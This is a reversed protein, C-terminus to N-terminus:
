RRVRERTREKHHTVHGRRREAAVFEKCSAVRGAPTEPKRAAAADALVFAM